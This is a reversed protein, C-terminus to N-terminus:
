KSCSPQAHHEHPWSRGWGRGPNEDEGTDGWFGWLEPAGGKCCLLCSRTGMVATILSESM